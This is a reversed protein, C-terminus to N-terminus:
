SNEKGLAFRLATKAILIGSAEPAYRNPLGRAWLVRDGQIGRISALDMLIADPSVQQQNLVPAPATNIIVDYKRFDAQSLLVANQGSSEWFQRDKEKRVALTVTTEQATLLFLLNKGIRGGGIVLINAKPLPHNQVLLEVACHATIEANESLYYPDKLFDFLRYPMQPLNGGLIVIHESLQELIPGLSEGGKLIGPRDFSPIPLLLHTVDNSAISTVVHGWQQLANKAFRLAATDGATFFIPQQM